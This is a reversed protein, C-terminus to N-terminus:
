INTQELRKTRCRQCVETHGQENPCDEESSSCPEAHILVQTSNLQASVEDEIADCLEHVKAVSMNRPVVLHLDVYREAGSKRTRLAHFEVFEEEYQSLVDVIIKKEAEPLSTDVLPLFAEKMLDFAAKAIIAAVGLAIIPDLIHWGTILILLLGLFVGASTFVDTRLHLADAQLAVSDTEKGVKMLRSSVFLNILAASGMVVLGLTFATGGVEGSGGHAIEILKKIAETVIMVVAVLILAAEITGSVNEIKGHGYEHDSDAPKASQKVAFFAICAALLDLGSHIGESLISVSGSIFGVILKAVTLLTNSAVSLLAVRAKKKHIQETM